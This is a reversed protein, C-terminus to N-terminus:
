SYQDTSDVFVSEEEAKAKKAPQKRGMKIVPAAQARTFPPLTELYSSKAVRVEKLTASFSLGNAVQQNHTSQFSTIIGVFLNRGTYTIISGAQHLNLINQRIQAADEGVIYGSISMTKAKVRIHDLIDIGDEIPQETVEIEHSPEESEVLVYNSNITAM